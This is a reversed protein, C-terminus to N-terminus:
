PRKSRLADSPSFRAYYRVPLYAGALALLASGVVVFVLIRLTPDSPLTSDYYVDSPLVSIPHWKMAYAVVVGILLGAGVGIYSLMLGVRTFTQQTRGRSLGMVMLMGLDKRKQTMLLSMVAIISFSTILVALSLFLTMAMSEMKLAFFLATNRDKWSQVSMGHDVLVQKLDEAQYPDKLRIEWGVEQSASHGLIGHKALASNFMLLKLDVDPRETSVLGKVVVREYKPIEGQPLLLSEPPILLVDDGEFVGLSRALDVGLVIENRKLTTAEPTPPPRNGDRDKWFRKLTEKLAKQDMGTAIAGGFVGDLTRVVVDQNNFRHLSAIRGKLLSRIEAEQAGTVDAPRADLVVLHPDVDLLRSRITVNFGNMVSLVIILSAVSLGVGAMCVWSIIRILAGSRRSLLYHHFLSWSLM